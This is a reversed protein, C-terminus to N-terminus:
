AYLAVYIENKLIRRITLQSVGFERALILTRETPRIRIEDAQAQTLKSRPHREGAGHFRVVDVWNGPHAVMVSEQPNSTLPEPPIRVWM